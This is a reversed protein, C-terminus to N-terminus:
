PSVEPMDTLSDVSGGQLWQSNSVWSQRLHWHVTVAIMQVDSLIM